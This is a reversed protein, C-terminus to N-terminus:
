HKLNQYNKLSSKERLYHRVFKKIQSRPIEYETRHGRLEWPINLTNYDEHVVVKVIDKSDYEIFGYITETETEIEVCCPTMMTTNLKKRIIYYFDVWLSITLLILPISLFVGLFLYFVWTAGHYDLKSIKGALISFLWALLSTYFIASVMLFGLGYWGLNPFSMMSYLADIFSSFLTKDTEKELNKYEEKFLRIRNKKYMDDKIVRIITAIRFSAGEWAYTYTGILWTKAYIMLVACLSSILMLIGPDLELLGFSILNMSILASLSLPLAIVVLIGLGYERITSPLGKSLSSAVESAIQDM